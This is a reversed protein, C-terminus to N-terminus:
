SDLEIEVFASRKGNKTPPGHEYVVNKYKWDTDNPGEPLHRITVFVRTKDHSHQKIFDTFNHIPFHFGMAKVSMIVDFKPADQWQKDNVELLKYDTIGRESLVSRIEDFSNYGGFDHLEGWNRYRKRKPHDPDFKENADQLWIQTGHEENFWGAEYAYGCGIDLLTNPTGNLYTVFQKYHEYKRDIYQDSLWFDQMRGM